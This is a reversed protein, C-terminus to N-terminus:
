LTNMNIIKFYVTEAGESGGFYGIGKVVTMTDTRIYSKKGASMELLTIVQTAFDFALIKDGYSNHVRKNQKEILWQHILYNIEGKTM